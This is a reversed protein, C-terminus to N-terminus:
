MKNHTSTGPNLARWTLLTVLHSLTVDCCTVTCVWLLVCQEYDLLHTNTSYCSVHECAAYVKSILRRDSQRSASWLPQPNPPCHFFYLKLHQNSTKIHSPLSSIDFTYSILSCMCTKHQLLYAQSKTRVQQYCHTTSSDIHSARVPLGTITSRTGMTKVTETDTRHTGTSMATATLTATVVPYLMPHSLDLLHQIVNWLAPHGLRNLLPTLPDGDWKPGTLSWCFIMLIHGWVFALTWCIYVSVCICEIDIHM